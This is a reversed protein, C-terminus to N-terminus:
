RFTCVARIHFHKESYIIIAFSMATTPRSFLFVTMMFVKTLLHRCFGVSRITLRYSGPTSLWQSFLGEADTVIGGRQESNSLSAFEITAYPVGTQTLSDAVLGSVQVEAVQAQSAQWGLLLTVLLLISSKNM